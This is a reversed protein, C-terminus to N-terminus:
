HRNSPPLIGGRHSYEFLPTATLTPSPPAVEGRPLTKRGVARPILVPEDSVFENLSESMASDLRVSAPTMTADLRVGTAALMGAGIGMEAIETAVEEDTLKGGKDLSHSGIKSLQALMEPSLMNPKRAKDARQRQIALKEALGNRRNRAHVWIAAFLACAALACLPFGLGVAIRTKNRADETKGLPQYAVVPAEKVPSLSIDAMAPAEIRGWMYVPSGQYGEFLSSTLAIPMSANRLPVPLNMALYAPFMQWQLSSQTEAIALEALQASLLDAVTANQTEFTIDASLVLAATSLLCPARTGSATSTITPTRSLKGPSAAVSATQTQSPSPTTLALSPAATQTASALPVRTASASPAAASASISANQTPLSANGTLAAAAASLTPSGSPSGALPAVTPLWGPCALMASVSQPPFAGGVCQLGTVRPPLPARPATLVLLRTSELVRQCLADAVADTLAATIAPNTLGALAYTDKLDVALTFIVGHVTFYGPSASPTYTVTASRTPSRTTVASGSPSRSTSPSRSPSRTNSRTVTRSPTVSRSPTLSPTPDRTVETSSGSGGQLDRLALDRVAQLRRAFESDGGSLADNHETPV